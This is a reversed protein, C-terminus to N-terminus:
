IPIDNERNTIYKGNYKFGTISFTFTYDKKIEETNSYKFKEELTDSLQTHRVVPSHIPSWCHCWGDKNFVSVDEKADSLKPRVFYYFSIMDMKGKLPTIKFGFNYSNSLCDKEIDNFEIKAYHDLSHEKKFKKWYDSISDVKNKYSGYQTEWEKQAEESIPMYFTSDGMKKLYDYIQRYTIDGFKVQKSEESLFEIKMKKMEEYFEVADTDRKVAARLEEVSLDETIPKNLYDTCSSLTLLCTISFFVIKKM